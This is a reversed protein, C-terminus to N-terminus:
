VLHSNFIVVFRLPEDVNWNVRVRVYSMQVAAEQNFDAEMFQGIGRGIYVVVEENLFQFPIGRVQVWFPIFWMFPPNNLPNWRHLILMRDAFSWPGRCLVLEMEEKTPFVFQFRRGEGIRRHVNGAQGWLRPMIAVISRLNQRRPMVPSGIIIFQNEAAAQQVVDQPLPIPEDNEGLDINQM